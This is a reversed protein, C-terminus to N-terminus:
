GRSLSIPYLPLFLQHSLIDWLCYSFHRSCSTEFHKGQKRNLASSAARYLIYSAAVTDVLWAIKANNKSRYEWHKFM